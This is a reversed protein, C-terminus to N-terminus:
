RSSSTHATHTVTWRTSCCARTLVVGLKRLVMSVVVGVSTSFTCVLAEWSGPLIGRWCCLKARSALIILVLVFLRSGLPRSVWSAPCPADHDFDAGYNQLKGKRSGAVVLRQFVDEGRWEVRGKRTQTRRRLSRGAKLRRDEVCNGCPSM